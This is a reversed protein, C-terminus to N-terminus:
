VFTATAGELQQYSLSSMNYDTQAHTEGLDYNLWAIEVYLSLVREYIDLRKATRGRFGSAQTM